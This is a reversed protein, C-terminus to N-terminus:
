KPRETTNTAVARDVVLIFNKARTRDVNPLKKKAFKGTIWQMAVYSNHTHHCVSKTRMELEFVNSTCIDTFSRASHMLVVHQLAHQCQSRHDPCFSLIIVSVRKEKRDWSAIFFPFATVEATRVMIAHRHRPSGDHEKSACPYASSINTGRVRDFSRIRCVRESTHIGFVREITSANHM